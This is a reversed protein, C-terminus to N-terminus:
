RASSQRQRQRARKLIRPVQRRDPRIGQSLEFQRKEYPPLEDLADQIAVATEHILKSIREELQKLETITVDSFEFRLTRDATIRLQKFEGTEVNVMSADHVYRNRKEAIDNMTGSLGNIKDIAAKSAGRFRVLSVLARLRNTPSMIQATICAGASQEVGALEWIAHNIVLEYHAWGSAIKGIATYYKSQVSKARAM